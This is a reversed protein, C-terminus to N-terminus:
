GACALKLDIRDGRRLRCRGEMTIRAPASGSAPEFSFGDGYRCEDVTGDTRTVDVLVLHGDPPSEPLDLTQPAAVLAAIESLTAAYDDQCISAIYGREGLAGVADAYRTGVGQAETTASVCRAPVHVGDEGAQAAVPGIVALVVDRTRGTGTGDDLTSLFDVYTQIPELKARGDPTECPNLQCLREQGNRPLVCYVGEGDCDADSQCARLCPQGDFSPPVLTVATATPDSCDDEDTVVVVLLRAGPRLFGRNGPPTADPARSMAEESLAHRVAELGMEQASGATGQGILTAFQELLAPDDWRLIRLAGEGGVPTGDVNKGLQLVGDEDEYTNLFPPNGDCGSSAHQTISTTIVGVQFDNKVEATALGTVFTNLERAVKEQEERMSGSNDIVFLIDTSVTPPLSIAATCADVVGEPAGGCSCGSLAATALAGLVAVKFPTTAAHAMSM